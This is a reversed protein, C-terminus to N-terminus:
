VAIVFQERISFGGIGPTRLSRVTDLSPRLDSEFSALGM